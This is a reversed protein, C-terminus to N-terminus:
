DETETETETRIVKVKEQNEPIDLCGAFGKKLAEQDLDRGIFVLKSGRPENEAWTSTNDFTAHCIMHVGQYVYKEQVNSISLVGKMRYIDTGSERLTYQIWEQDYSPLFHPDSNPNPNVPPPAVELLTQHVDGPQEISLSGIRDDHEHDEGESNLFDPEM